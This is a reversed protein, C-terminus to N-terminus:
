RGNTKEDSRGVVTGRVMLEVKRFGNEELYIDMNSSFEGAAYVHIVCAYQVTEGAGVITM